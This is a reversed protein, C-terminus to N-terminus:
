LLIAALSPCKMRWHFSPNSSLAAAAKNHPTKANQLLFFFSHCSALCNLHRSFLPREPCHQCVVHFYKFNRIPILIAANVLVWKMINHIHFVTSTFCCFLLLDYLLKQWSDKGLTRPFPVALTSLFYFEHHRLSESLQPLVSFMKSGFTSSVHVATPCHNILRKAWALCPGTCYVQKEGALRDPFM